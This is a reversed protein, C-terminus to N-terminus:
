RVNNIQKKINWNNPLYKCNTNKIFHDRWMEVFSQIDNIKEMVIQGHTKKSNTISSLYIKELRKRTLRKINFRDKIIKKLENVRCKPMKSLDKNLLTYSIKSMKIDVNKIIIGNIPADYEISLFEKLSDASREYKEHCSICLPLVDHFDHSKLVLPFYRRYCYPVIHHKTLYEESGCCVCKNMMESLGFEKGHNGLGNPKFKLRVILPNESIIEGLDRNLYWKARKEDCRFMLINDPSLVKCNGYIKRFKPVM